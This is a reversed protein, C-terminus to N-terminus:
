EIRLMNKIIYDGTTSDYYGCQQQILLPRIYGKEYTYTISILTGFVIGVVIGWVLAVIIPTKNEKNDKNDRGM